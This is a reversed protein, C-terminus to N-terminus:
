GANEKEIAALLAQFQQQRRTVDYLNDYTYNRVAGVAARFRRDRCAADFDVDVQNWDLKAAGGIAGDIDYIVSSEIYAILPDTRAVELRFVVEHSEQGRVAENLSRRLAQNRILGLRGGDRLEDFTTRVLRAPVLKGLRYLGTAFADRDAEPLDCAALRDFVLDSYRANEAMFDIGSQTMKVSLRLDDELRLMAGRTERGEIVGANWNAVQIGIFVGVVVIVLDIAIATWEQRRVHDIVRRLIV